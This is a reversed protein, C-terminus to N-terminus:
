INALDGGSDWTVSLAGSVQRLAEELGRNERNQCLYFSESYPLNTRTRAKLRYRM